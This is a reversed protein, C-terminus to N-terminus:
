FLRPLNALASNPGAVRLAEDGMGRGQPGPLSLGCVTVTGGKM